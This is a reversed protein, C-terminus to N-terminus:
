QKTEKSLESKVWKILNQAFVKKAKEMNKQLIDKQKTLSLNKIEKNLILYAYLRISSRNTERLQKVIPSVDSLHFLNGERDIVEYEREGRYEWPKFFTVSLLLFGDVKSKRLEKNIQTELEKRKVFSRGLLEESLWNLTFDTNETTKHTTESPLVRGETRYYKRRQHDAFMAEIENAVQDNFQKYAGIDKWLAVGRKKRLLIEDLLADLERFEVWKESTSIGESKELENLLGRAQRLINLVDIDDLFNVQLSKGTDSEMKALPFGLPLADFPPIADWHSKLLRWVIEEFMRNTVVVRHHHYLWRYSKYREIVLSEVASLARITPRIVFSEEKKHGLTVIKALRMGEVLRSLDFRGFEAGSTHGDRLM